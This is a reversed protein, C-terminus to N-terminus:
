RTGAAYFETLQMYDLMLMLDLSVDAEMLTSFESVLAPAFANWILGQKELQAPEVARRKARGLTDVLTGALADWSWSGTEEPTVALLLTQPPAANPQNFRFSIGTIEQEMPIEETWEDLLIARQRMGPKFASAGHAAISLTDRSIGFARSPDLPDKEPFEVALWSDQNRHPVQVPLMDLAVDNMAEALVRIVEWRHVQPRVRALAQLWEDVIEGASAGPVAAVAHALLQGRASDALALDADNYCHFAPLIRLTEGFVLKGAELLLRVQEAVPTAPTAKGILEGARDLVGDKQVSRRLRRAIRHARALLESRAAAATLDAQPPFADSVGFDAVARLTAALTEADSVLFAVTLAKDDTFELEAEELKDFAAGLKGSFSEDDAPDDPDNLLVLQVSPAVAGDLADALTKLMDFAGQVRARLDATDYGDPNDKDVPIATAKGGAAPMFDRANAARSEAVMARLQRALPFLQAFTREGSAVPPNFAVRVAEDDDIGHARRYQYAIRTELETAGGTGEPAISTICVFDLPQIGLDALSVAHRDAGGERAIECLVKAPSPALISGLWHNLGTEARARPTMPMEPWPNAQVTAPDLDDFHVTLRNTFTFETGRPTDIVQLAPPVRAEKQALSVAGVRDFNGQVLQYANEAMLLDKVADLTDRLADREALVAAGQQADPRQAAPLIASLGYGDAASMAATALRLGNVVSYAPLADSPDGTGAQVVERAEFPFAQRYPLIFQNLELVPVDGRAASASTRDHLGREFQYGLLAEIAQGNRMGQLVFDARRVRESSLNVSFMEARAPDAHSLYANRLVAGAAAHNISPAHMFGGRKSGPAAGPVAVADDEELIPRADDPRLSEPLSESALFVKTAPKVSEVWGFAGLYIGTRRDDAGLRRQQALRQTFLGTEWADLRYQCCDLHEVFARELAATTADALVALAQKQEAVFGAEVDAVEYGRWIADAVSAAALAHGPQVAGVRASMVELKSLTPSAARMGPLTTARVAQELAPEFDGRARLWDYAGHHLQLLVANRLMLYLLSSPRAGDFQEKLITDFSGARALWDVYNLALRASESPPRSDVLNPADLATTYHQWLVHLSKMRSVDSMQPPFGLNELYLRASAPMSYILSALENAYRGRDRFSDLNRLYEDSYGIRQYFEVSTPHLGLLHMLVESPDTGPKGAFPLTAAIGHWTKDFRALLAHLDELFPTLEDFLLVGAIGGERAPYKWRSLDSTVLIGYPQDGVRIAPVPGRGTVYSSFFSRVLRATAPKIVPSMWTRLWYGLTAPFLAANMATAELLDTGDARRVTQLPGYAIGLVDAIQRGDTQRKRPDAHAPDFAPPGAETFFALDDYPDNDSYGSGDRETNNTPTGQAVLSFGKPSFQHNAILEELMAAGDAASASLMVGLVCIRAFGNSAEEASLPVRFAMGQEVAKDFDSMWDFEGGFTLAGDPDKFAAKADLPDPGLTLTDPVLAGPVERPAGTESGYLLLVFRDPLVRTRPARTWADTKTLDHEPFAAIQTRVAENVREGWKQAEVLRIFADGDEEAVAQQLALRVAGPLPLALLGDFFDAQAALLFAVLNQTAGGAALASWDLPRTQRAVWAARSGGLLQVVHRWAAQRRRDREDRLHEAAVLEVWYLEGAAVETDTLTAEHTHVVIDDPYIRVWLETGRGTPVFISEIRVPFLLFPTGDDLRALAKRPHPDTYLGGVLGGLEAKCRGLSGSAQAIASQLERERAKLTELDAFAPQLLEALRGQAGALSQRQAEMDARGATLRVQHEDEQQRLRGLQDSAASLSARLNDGTHGIRALETELGAIEEKDPPARRNSAELQERLSASRRGAAAIHQELHAVLREQERLRALWAETKRVAERTAALRAQTEAVQARLIAADGDGDPQASTQGQEARRIQKRVGALGIRATYLDDEHRRCNTRVVAIAELQENFEPM